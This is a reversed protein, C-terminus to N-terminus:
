MWTYNNYQSYIADFILKGLSKNGSNHWEKAKELSIKITREM